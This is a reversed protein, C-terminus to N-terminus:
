HKFHRTKTFVMAIGLEDCKNISDQDRISGGPQVIAVVGYEAALTVVDDFPFFADSALILDKEQGLNKAQELAIKASDIRSTQGSGLGVTQDDKVIVIANSKVHKVVSQGFRMQTYQSETPIKKTVCEYTIDFNNVNDIDQVLLGNGVSKFQKTVKVNSDNMKLIRLNKKKMLIELADKNYNPAVIVELFIQSMKEAVAKTITQNTVVIGGFISVPDSSYAKDWAIEITEGIGVGCPTMHKIACVTPQKFEGLLDLAAQADQINNYSLEKGHLIDCVEITNSGGVRGYFAANQHPNEGYRLDQKLDYSVTLSNVKKTAINDLLYNSIIADYRATLAFAKVGLNAKLESTVNSTRIAEIVESYDNPDTVVIVDKYNKASSRIMSPGGIDINEIVKDLDGSKIAEEFPYLNVCVLDIPKIDWQKIQEVHSELDRRFLLGGHVYPSLTKVRGDLIEPFNTVKTIDIANIGDEKLKGLTGGTSIIEYGNEELAACFDSIGQKDSVSVLARKM